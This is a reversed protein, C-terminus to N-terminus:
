LRMDIVGKLIGDQYQAVMEYAQQTQSTTFHHTVLEAPHLLGQEVLHICAPLTRLSRRVMQLTLEKRRSTGSCFTIRDHPNTGVVMIRGGPAAVEVMNWLTEDSGSCEFVLPAGFPGTEELVLRRTEEPQGAVAQIVCSAGMAKARQLRDAFLDVCIIKLGRTLALVSLICTGVVGTGLIVVTEAPRVQAQRVAHLAIGMPELVVAADDSITDPLREILHMPFVMYEQMAGQTPPLGLFTVHPCINDRGQQCWDCVGCPSAPEIAVRCGVWDADRPDGVAEVVGMCEHGIALPASMQNEGIRGDRYMHLDSGCIGVKSIRVLAMGQGCEPRPIEEVAFTRPAALVIRKM